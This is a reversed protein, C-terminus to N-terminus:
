LVDLAEVGFAELPFFLLALAFSALDLAVLVGALDGALDALFDALPVGPTLDAEFDM